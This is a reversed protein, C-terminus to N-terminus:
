WTPIHSKIKKLTKKFAEASYQDDNENAARIAKEEWEIADATRGSKYLLNAYTDYLPWETFFGRRIVGEIWKIAINLSKSDRRYLFVLWAAENVGWDDNWTTTDSGFKERKEIYNDLFGELNEYSGYWRIKAALLNRDAYEKNYKKKIIRHIHRWDPEPASPPPADKRMVLLLPTFNGLKGLLSDVIEKQIIEDVIKSSFYSNRM